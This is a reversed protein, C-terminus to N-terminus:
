FLSDRIRKSILAANSTNVGLICFADKETSRSSHTKSGITGVTFSLEQFSATHAFAPTTILVETGIPLPTPINCMQIVIERLSDKTM